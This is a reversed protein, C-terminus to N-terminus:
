NYKGTLSSELLLSTEFQIYKLFTQYEIYGDRNLDSLKEQDKFDWTYTELIIVICIQRLKWCLSDELHGQSSGLWTSTISLQETKLSFM